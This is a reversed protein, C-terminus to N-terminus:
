SRAFAAHQPSCETHAPLLPVLAIVHCAAPQDATACTINNDTLLRLGHAAAAAASLPFGVLRRAHDRPRMRGPCASQSVTPMFPARGVGGDSCRRRVAAAFSRARGRGGLSSSAGTVVVECPIVTCRRVIIVTGM